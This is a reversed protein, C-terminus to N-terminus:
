NGKLVDQMIEVQNLILNAHKESQKKSSVNETYVTYDTFMCKEDCELLDNLLTIKSNLMESERKFSKDSALCDDKIHKIIQKTYYDVMFLFDTM